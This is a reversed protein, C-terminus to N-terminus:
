RQTNQQELLQKIVGFLIDTNLSREHAEDLIIVQVLLTHTPPPPPTHKRTPHPYYLMDM